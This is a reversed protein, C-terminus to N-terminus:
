EYRLAVAPDVRTARRAPLWAATVASLGLILSVGAFTPPDTASVEFLLTAMTRTLAYAAALGIGCGILTLRMAQGVVMRMVQEPAAGLAMRIGIEHTRQSVSYAMVGYIGVAAIVLALVAFAVMLTVFFRHTWMSYAIHEDMTRVDNLSIDPNRARMAERIRGSLTAAGLDSHVVLNMYQAPDQNHAVYMTGIAHQNRDEVGMVVDPAVGVVTAWGLSDPEGEFRVRRGIPDKGPWLRAAIAESAIAVRRTGARDAATFDRGKRLPLGFVDFYGPQVCQFGSAPALKPDHEAGEAEVPRIWNARGLPLSTALSASRVGPLARVDALLGGFFAVKSEATPFTAIPLLMGGTLVNETRMTTRLDNLKLFSRVMLGAGVLLVLSLAIEAVVLGARARNRGRSSGAQPSGERLADMLNADVAHLAPALGFLLGALVSIGVTFGLTPGLNEFTIWFPKEVPITGLIAHLGFRALIVGLVSGLLAVVVSETLLQRVLRRRPSGLALRVSIERRRAAARSLMLNAVNTCAILLVFGVAGLLLLMMPRLGRVFREQLPWVHAGIGELEKPYQKQLQAAFAKVEANARELTVGERLRGVTLLAFDNRADGALEISIPIWFDHVEPWRFGEPMVGVIQRNRGNIRLTRGLVNPDAKYRETWIKHSILVSEWNKGKEEEDPRLQRGLIPQVGLTPFLDPTVTAAYLREADRDITVIANHDYYSGLSAFSRNAARLDRFNQYSLGFDQADRKLHDHGVHVLRKQDAVNPIPRLMMGWVMDFVMTNVGIGLGMTAVVVFTFGPSRRLTRLAFRLDQLLVDM